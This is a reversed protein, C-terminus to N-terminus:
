ADASRKRGLLFYSVGLIGLAIGPTYRVDHSHLIGIGDILLCGLAIALSFYRALVNKRIVAFALVLILAAALYDWYVSHVSTAITLNGSAILAAVTALALAWLLTLFFSM